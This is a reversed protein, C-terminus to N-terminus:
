VRGCTLLLGYGTGQELERELNWNRFCSNCCFAFPTSSYSERCRYYSFCQRGSNEKPPDECRRHAVRLSDDCRSIHLMQSGFTYEYVLLRIEPPLLRFFLSSSQPNISEKPSKLSSMTAQISKSQSAQNNQFSFSKECLESIYGIGKLASLRTFQSSRKHTMIFKKQHVITNTQIYEHGGIWSM